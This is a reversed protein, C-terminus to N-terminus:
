VYGFQSSITTSSPEVSSVLDYREVIVSDPEQRLSERLKGVAHPDINGDIIEYEYRGELVAGLAVLSLPMRVGRSSCMKPNVLIVRRTM